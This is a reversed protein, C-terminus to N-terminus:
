MRKRRARLLNHMVDNIIVMGLLIKDEDVVPVALLSYKSLIENLSDIKDTDYVFVVNKNTIHRLETEPESVLLDRISVTSVLKGDADIIYLYYITDSEPKLKRLEKLIDDVTSDESFCFYDTTMISGVSNDPYEMLERVEESAESEMENLLAEATDEHMEDLIDAVEDAPMKELLDAAKEVSLSELLSIQADTELEELVDAAKEDDLSAFIKMQTNRDMDEIIDALDAPHLKDLNSTSKGLRIGAHGFDVAEVDDWLIYHTSLTMGFPKILKKIPKAVGLRRLLGEVGVDVAVLYTADGLVALRLDNVRVLKHGNMDVLQRDLVFKGLFFCHEENLTYPILQPCKLFYQGRKKAIRVTSFDITSIGSPTKLSLAVAKPRVYTTDIAIDRVKGLVDGSESLVTRGLIRSFFFTSVLAM